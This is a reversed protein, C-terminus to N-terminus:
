EKVIKIWKLMKKTLRKLAYQHKKDRLENAYWDGLVARVEQQTM